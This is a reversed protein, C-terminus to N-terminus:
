VAVAVGASGPSSGQVNAHLLYRGDPGVSLDGSGSSLEIQRAPFNLANLLIDLLDHLQDSGGCPRAWTVIASLLLNANEADDLGWLDRDSFGMVLHGVGLLVESSQMPPPNQSGGSGSRRGSDERGAKACATAGVGVM